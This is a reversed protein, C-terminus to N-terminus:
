RGPSEPPDLVGGAETSPFSFPPTGECMSSTTLFFTSCIKNMERRRRKRRFLAEERPSYQHPQATAFDDTVATVANHIDDDRCTIGGDGGTIVDEGGTIVDEGGSFAFGRSPGPGNAITTTPRFDRTSPYILHEMVGGFSLIDPIKSMITPDKTIEAAGQSITAGSSSPSFCHGTMPVPKTAGFTSRIPILSTQDATTSIYAKTSPSPYADDFVEEADEIAQRRALFILRSLFLSICSLAEM